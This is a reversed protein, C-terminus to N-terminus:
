GRRRIRANWVNVLNFPADFTATWGNTGGSSGVSFDAVFGGAWESRITANVSQTM